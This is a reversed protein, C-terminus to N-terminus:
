FHQGSVDLFETVAKEVEIGPLMAHATHFFEGFFLFEELHRATTIKIESGDRGSQFLYFVRM